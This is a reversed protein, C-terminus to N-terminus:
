NTHGMPCRDVVCFLRHRLSVDRRYDRWCFRTFHFGHCYLLSVHESLAEGALGNSHGYLPTALSRGHHRIYRTEDDTCIILPRCLLLTGYTMILVTYASTNAEVEWRVNRTVMIAAVNVAGLHHVVSVWSVKSSVFLLEHLYMAIFIATAVLVVDGNTSKLGAIYPTSFDALGNVILLYPYLALGIM